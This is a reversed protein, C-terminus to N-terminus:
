NGSHLPGLPSAGCDDREMSFIVGTIKWGEETKLFNFNNIGCHSFEGDRYFDYPTWVIAMRDHLMVKPEWFREILEGESTSLNKLYDNHSPRIVLLGDPGERYGYLIGDPTMIRRMRDVDKATMAEFFTEVVGIVAARETEDDAASAITTTSCALYFIFMTFKNHTM